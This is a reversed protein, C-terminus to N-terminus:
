SNSKKRNRLQQWLLMLLVSSVVSLLIVLVTIQNQKKELQEGLSLISQQQEDLEAQLLAIAQDNQAAPNTPREPIPIKGEISLNAVANPAFVGSYLVDVRVSDGHAPLAAILCGVGEDVPIKDYPTGPNLEGRSGASDYVAFSRPSKGADSQYTYNIQVLQNYTVEKYAPKGDKTGDREKLTFMDNSLVYVSVFTLTGLPDRDNREDYFHIAEGLGYVHNRAYDTTTNGAFCSSLLPLCVLTAACLCIIKKM